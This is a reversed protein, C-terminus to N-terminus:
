DQIRITSGGTKLQTSMFPDTQITEPSILASTTGQHVAPTKSVNRITVTTGLLLRHLVDQILTWQSRKGTTQRNLIFSAWIRHFVQSALIQVKPKEDNPIDHTMRIFLYIQFLTVEGM